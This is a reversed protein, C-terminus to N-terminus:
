RTTSFFPSYQSLAGNGRSADGAASSSGTLHPQLQPLQVCACMYMHIANVSHAHACTCCCRRRSRVSRVACCSGQVNCAHQRVSPCFTSVPVCNPTPWSGLKLSELLPLSGWVSMYTVTCKDGRAAATAHANAACVFRANGYAAALAATVPRARAFLLELM